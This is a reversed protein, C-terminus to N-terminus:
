TDYRSRKWRRFDLMHAVKPWDGLIPYPGSFLRPPVNTSARPCPRSKQPGKGLGRASSIIHQHRRLKTFCSKALQGCAHGCEVNRRNILLPTYSCSQHQQRSSRTTFGGSNLHIAAVVISHLKRTNAGITRVAALCLRKCLYAM